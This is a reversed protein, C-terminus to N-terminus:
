SGTASINNLWMLTSEYKRSYSVARAPVNAGSRKMGLFLVTTSPRTDLLSGPNSDFSSSLRRISSAARYTSRSWSASLGYHPNALVAGPLLSVGSCCAALSRSTTSTARSTHPYALGVDPTLSVRRPLMEHRESLYVDPSNVVG